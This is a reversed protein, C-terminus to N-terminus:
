LSTCYTLSRNTAKYLHGITKPVQSLYDTTFRGVLCVRLVEFSEQCSSVHSRMERAAEQLHGLNPRGNPWECTAIECMVGMAHVRDRVLQAEQASELRLGHDVVVGLLGEVFGPAVSGKDESKREVAKKWAAALVCLAM